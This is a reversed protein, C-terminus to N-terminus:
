HQMNQPDLQFRVDFRVVMEIRVFRGDVIVIDELPVDEVVKVSGRLRAEGESIDMDEDDEEEMEENESAEDEVMAEGGAVQETGNVDVEIRAVVEERELTGHADEEDSHLEGGENELVEEVVIVEGRVGVIQDSSVDEVGGQVVGSEERSTEEGGGVEEVEEGGDGIVEEERQVQGQHGGDHVFVKSVAYAAVLGFAVRGLAVFLKRCMTEASLFVIQNVM